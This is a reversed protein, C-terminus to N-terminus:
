RRPAVSIGLLMQGAIEFNSRHGQGQQTVANIDRFRREFANDSFIATSGAAHYAFDAVDKASQIVHTSMMRLMIRQQPSFEAGSEAHRWMEAITQHLYARAAQLSAFCAGTQQQIAGNDRLLGSGHGPKKKGALTIFDELMRRAIGLAVAGFAFGYLNIVSFRYLTGTERRDPLHDRTFGYADPVFLDEVSYNDSGTGRLGMVQWVDEIKAAERRFLFSREVCKGNPGLRPSGDAEHVNCHGALWQANRSGSAFIWAGSVRYGGKCAVAKANANSPGWALVADAPGFVEKAIAPDLYAATFSCGCAQGLCWATSADASAIEEMVKVFTVLDLELGGLSRPILMRFLAREHLTQMLAIPVQRNTEIEPAYGEIVPLLRNAAEVIARGRTSADSTPAPLIQDLM